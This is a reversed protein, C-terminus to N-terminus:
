QMDKDIIKQLEAYIEKPELPALNISRSILEQMEIFVLIAKRVEQRGEERSIQCNKCPCYKGVPADDSIESVDSAAM